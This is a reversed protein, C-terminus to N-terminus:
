PKVEIVAIEPRCLFRIPLTKTGIGRNVYMATEGETFLGKMYPTRNAYRSMKVLFPIGVQGGHTDGVLVLNVGARIAEQFISPSAAILIAPEEPPSRSLVQELLGRKSRSDDLGALWMSSGNDLPINRSENLLFHIGSPALERALSRGDMVIRDTDGPIAYIGKAARMSKFLEVAPEVQTADDIIDGTFLIIDPRLANIKEILKKERFGIGETLHIDTIHVMKTSGVVRALEADRIVVRHVDVWNPEIVFADLVVLFGAAMVVLIGITMRSLRRFRILDAGAALSGGVACFSFAYKLMQFKTM